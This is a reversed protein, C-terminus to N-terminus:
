GRRLTVPGSFVSLSASAFSAAYEPHKAPTLLVLVITYADVVSTMARMAIVSLSYKYFTTRHRLFHRRKSQDYSCHM